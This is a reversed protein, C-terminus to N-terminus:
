AEPLLFRHDALALEDGPLAIASTIRRGNLWTGNTSGLDLVDWGEITRRIRVHHRPIAHGDVSIDCEYSRGLVVAETGAPVVLRAAPERPEMLWQWLARLVGAPPRRYWPLDAVLADLRGDHSRPDSGFSAGPL